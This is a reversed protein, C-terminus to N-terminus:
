HVCRKVREYVEEPTLGDASVVPIDTQVDQMGMFNKDVGTIVMVSAGLAQSGAEDLEVCRCGQRELYEKVPQLGQELAVTIM